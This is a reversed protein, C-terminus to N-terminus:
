KIAVKKGNYIYIGKQTPKGELKVGQLTYWGDAADTTQEESDVSLINTAEDNDAFGITLASGLWDRTTPYFYAQFAPVNGTTKAFETGAANLVYCQTVATKQVDGSFIFHPGSTASKADAKILAGAGEFTIPKGTLQNETGWADSPVNILYPTYAKIADTYTFDVSTKNDSKFAFVWFNKGTESSSKFWDLPTTGQKVATVDFPLVITNWGGSTKNAGTTFTRTYSIKTATFDIPTYFGHTGDDTLVINAATTGKVVNNSIGEPTAASEDLLYLCNPNSNPTISTVVSQGRLDVVAADPAVYNSTALALTETGDAAILTIADAVAYYSNAIVYGGIVPGGDRYYQVQPKYQTAADLDYEFHVDVTEDAPVTTKVAKHINGGGNIWLVLMINGTYNDTTSKNHAHVVAKVKKGLFKKTDGGVDVINIDTSFELEPKDDGATGAVINLAGIESWIVNTATKDTAIKLDKIAPVDGNYKFAFSAKTKKGTEVSIGNGAVPVSSGSLFLYLNDNFNSGNNQITATIATLEGKVCETPKTVDLVDLDITYSMASVTVDTAHADLKLYYDETGLCELWTTEDKFRSVPKITYTKGDELLSLNFKSSLSISAYGSNPDLSGTNYYTTPTQILVDDKDFLGIGFQFEHTTSLRNFIKWKAEVNVSADKVLAAAGTYDINEVSLRGEEVEVPVPGVPKEIGILASQKMTYGDNSRGAGIGTEHPNAINLLYYGDGKGSWGWNIHFYGDESYGDCIFAHGDEGHEKGNGISSGSYLVPRSAALEQYILNEWETTTYKSRKCYKVREDFGFYTKLPERIDSSAASGGYDSSGYDMNIAAGCYQMLRAVAQANEDGSADEEGTYTLQMKDWAFNDIKSLADVEVQKDGFVTWITECTYKAREKMGEPFGDKRNHYYLIQALATAVCGTACKKSDFFVPSYYNYPNGQDWKTQILPAIASKVGAPAKRVKSETVQQGNKEVWAIQNAYEQLWAKMNDPINNADFAGEDTYGIIDPTLDSASVIVFGGDSGINFVHYADGTTALSLQEEQLPAKARGEATGVKGTLFTLAKAKAEEKGVPGALLTSTLMLGIVFLLAKKM